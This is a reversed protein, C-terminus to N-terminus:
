KELGLNFRLDNIGDWEGYEEEVKEIAKRVIEKCEKMVDLKEECDGCLHRYKGCRKKKGKLYYSVLSCGQQIEGEIEKFKM